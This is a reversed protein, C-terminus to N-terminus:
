RTRWGLRTNSTTTSRRVLIRGGTPITSVRTDGGTLAWVDMGTTIAIAALVTLGLDRGATVISGEALDGIILHARPSHRVRLPVLPSHGLPSRARRPVQGRVRVASLRLVRTAASGVVTRALGPMGAVAELRM